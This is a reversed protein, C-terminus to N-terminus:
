SRTAEEIIVEMFSRNYFLNALRDRAKIYKNRIQESDGGHRCVYFPLSIYYPPIPACLEGLNWHVEQLWEWENELSGFDEKLPPRAHKGSFDDLFFFVLKGGCIHPKLNNQFIEFFPAKNLYTGVDCRRCYYDSNDRGYGFVLGLLFDDRAFTKFVSEKTHQLHSFFGDTTIFKKRVFKQLELHESIVRKLAIKNFFEISLHKGDKMSAKFIFRHSDKFAKTLFAFLREKVDPHDHLYDTDGEQISVAKEGILTYGLEDTFISAIARELQPDNAYSVNALLKSSSTFAHAAVIFILFQKWFQYKSM